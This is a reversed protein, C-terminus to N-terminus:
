DIQELQIEYLLDSQSKYIYPDLDLMGNIFIGIKWVVALNM